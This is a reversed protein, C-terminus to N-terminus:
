YTYYESQDIYESYYPTNQNIEDSKAKLLSTQHDKAKVVEIVDYNKNLFTFLKM